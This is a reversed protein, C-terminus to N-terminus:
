RGASSSSSSSSSGAPPPAERDLAAEVGSRLNKLVFVIPDESQPGPSPGAAAVPERPFSAIETDLFSLAAQLCAGRAERQQASADAALPQLVTNVVAAYDSGLRHRIDQRRQAPHPEPSTLDVPAGEAERLLLEVSAGTAARPLFEVLLENRRADEAAVAVRKRAELCDRLTAPSIDRFLHRLIREPPCGPRPEDLFAGLLRSISAATLPTAQRSAALFDLAQLRESWPADAREWETAWANPEALGLRLGLRIHAPFTEKLLEQAEKRAFRGYHYALETQIAAPPGLASGDPAAGTILRRLQGGDFVSSSTPDSAQLKCLAEVLRQREPGDLHEAALVVRHLRDTSVPPDFLMGLQQGPAALIARVLLRCAQVSLNECDADHDWALWASTVTEIRRAADAHPLTAPLLARLFQGKSVETFETANHVYRAVQRLAETDIGSEIARCIWPVDVDFEPQARLAEASAQAVMWILRGRDEDTVDRRFGAYEGRTIEITGRRKVIADLLEIGNRQHTTSQDQDQDKDQMLGRVAAVLALSRDPAKLAMDIWRHRLADRVESATGMAPNAHARLALARAEAQVGDPSTEHVCRELFSNLDGLIHRRESVAADSIQLAAPQRVLPHEASLRSRKTDHEVEDERKRKAQAAPAHPPLETVPRGRADHGIADPGPQAQAVPTHRTPSSSRSPAAM